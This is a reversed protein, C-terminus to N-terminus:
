RCGECIRDPDIVRGPRRPVALDALIHAMEHGLAWQSLYWGSGDVYPGGLIYLQHDYTITTRRCIWGSKCPSVRRLARAGCIHVTIRGLHYIEHFDPDIRKAADVDIREAFSRAALCDERFSSAKPPPAATTVCSTVGVLAAFAAIKALRKM